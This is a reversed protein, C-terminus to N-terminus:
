DICAEWENGNGAKMACAYESSTVERLCQDTARQFETGQRKELKKLARAAPRQEEPLRQLEPDGDITMDVYRDLMEACQAPTARKSCAGLALLSLVFIRRM